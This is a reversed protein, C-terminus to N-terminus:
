IDARAPWRRWVAVHLLVATSLANLTVHSLWGWEHEPPVGLARALLPLSWALLVALTAAISLSITRSVALNRTVRIAPWWEFLLAVVLVCSIGTGAVATIRGGPWGLLASALWYAAWGCAIVTVNAVM